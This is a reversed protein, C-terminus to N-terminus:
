KPRVSRPPKMSPPLSIQTVSIMEGDEISFERWISQPASFQEVITDGNDRTSVEATGSQPCVAVKIM